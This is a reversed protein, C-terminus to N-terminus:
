SRLINNAEQKVRQKLAEPRVVKVQSGFSLVWGILEDIDAVILIMKM